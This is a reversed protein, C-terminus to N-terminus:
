SGLAPPGRSPMDPPLQTAAGLGLKVGLAVAVEVMDELAVMVAEAVCVGDEVPVSLELPVVLAVAVMDGDDVPV